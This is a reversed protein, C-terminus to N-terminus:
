TVDIKTEALHVLTAFAGNGVYERAIFGFNNRGHYLFLADHYVIYSDFSRWESSV